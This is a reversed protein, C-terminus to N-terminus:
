SQGFLLFFHGYRECEGDAVDIMNGVVEVSNM